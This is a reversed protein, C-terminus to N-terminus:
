FTVESGDTLHTQGAVIIKDGTNVGTTIVVENNGTARGASIRRRVAKNGENVAFVYLLGDADRVVARAPVVVEPVTKGTRVTVETLMGPLLKGAGNSIRLKVSYTKSADDAQPNIISIKGKISDQLTPIYIGAEMGQRLSGIESEPVTVKAYVMDTKAITFAAIGPAATSGSEALKATVIGQMPAYLRSDTLRKAALNRNAKAQELKTKIEIYDKAPLSGKEYLSNLRQYLDSAQALSAEAIALSNTYETADISALLQGASVHQGEQVMVNNVTGPVAFGTQVINDAEITGSYIFQQQLAAPQVLHITVRVPAASQQKTEKNSGCSMFLMGSLVATLGYQYNFQM